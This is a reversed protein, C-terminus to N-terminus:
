PQMLGMPQRARILLDQDLLIAKHESVEGTTWRVSHEAHLETGLAWFALGSYLREQAAWAGFEGDRDFGLNPAVHGVIDHVARFRDYAGGSENGLLPHARDRDVAATTVELLHGTRVAAIMEDASGYPTRCCTFVVRLEPSVQGSTLGFFARDSQRELQCYAAFVQGDKPTSQAALFRQAVEHAVEENVKLTNVLAPRVTRWEVSLPTAAGTNRRSSTM